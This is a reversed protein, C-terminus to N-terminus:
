NAAPVPEFEVEYMVPWRKGSILFRDSGPIHAIGNLVNNPDPEALNAADDTTIVATVAGSDVDIRVIDASQWVNAYVVRRGDEFRCDLENLKEVPSSQNTVPVRDVEVFTEPNLLRLQNTGDSMVMVTADGDNADFHCLGWGEGSFSTTQLVELTNKDRKLATGSRWTLQWVVDELVTIGEGFYPEELAVQPDQRVDAHDISTTYIGSQGVLGTSVWLRDGDLELGQTFATRDFPHSAIVKARLQQPSQTAAPAETAAQESDSTACAALAGAAMVGTACALAAISLRLRPASRHSSTLRLGTRMLGGETSSLLLIWSVRPIGPGGRYSLTEGTTASRAM